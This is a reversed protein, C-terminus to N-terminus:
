YTGFQASIVGEKKQLNFAQPWGINLLDRSVMQSGCESVKHKQTM